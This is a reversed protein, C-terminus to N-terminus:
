ESSSFCPLRCRTQGPRIQKCGHADDRRCLLRTRFDDAVHLGSSGLQRGQRRHLARIGNREETNRALASQLGEHCVPQGRCAPACSPWRWGFFVLLKCSSQECQRPLFLHSVPCSRHVPEDLDIRLISLTVVDAMRGGCACCVARTFLEGHKSTSPTNLTSLARIGNTQAAARSLQLLGTAAIGDLSLRKWYVKLLSPLEGTAQRLAM